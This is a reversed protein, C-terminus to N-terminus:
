NVNQDHSEELALPYIYNEKGDERSRMDRAQFMNKDSHFRVHGCPMGYVVITPLKLKANLNCVSRANVYFEQCLYVGINCPATDQKRVTGIRFRTLQKVEM